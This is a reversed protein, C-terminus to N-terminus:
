LLGGPRRFGPPLSFPRQRRCGRFMEILRGINKDIDFRTEARRRGGTALRARLGSDDALRALAGALAASERPPVLLGSVDHEILEPIGRQCTGVVPLLMAMAEMLVNPTVDGTGDRDIVSPLVFADAERYQDLVDEFPLAGALLVDKELGLRAIEGQLGAHYPAFDVHAGGVITCRFRYGREKLIACAAVLYEFGKAPVLRGISLIRLIDPQPQRHVPLPFSRLDLGEYVHVITRSRGGDPLHSRIAPVNFRANTVISDARRLRAALGIRLTDRHLDSARAQVTFPVRLLRAAMLGTTAEAKCWPVHVHTIGQEEMLGALYVARDLQRSSDSSGRSRPELRNYLSIRAMALPNRGRFRRRFTALLVPDLPEFYRVRAALRRAEAGLCPESGSDHAYIEVPVGARELAGIERVIFTETLRPITHYYYGVKM